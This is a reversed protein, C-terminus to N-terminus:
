CAQIYEGETGVARFASKQKGIKERVGKIHVSKTPFQENCSVSESMVLDRQDITYKRGQKESAVPDPGYM